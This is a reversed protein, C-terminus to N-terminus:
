NRDSCFLDMIRHSSTRSELFENIESITHTNSIKYIDYYSLGQNKLERLIRNAQVHLDEHEDGTSFYFDTSKHAPRLNPCQEYIYDGVIEEVCKAGLENLQGSLAHGLEHSAIRTSNHLRDKLAFILTYRKNTGPDPIPSYSFGKVSEPANIEKLKKELSDKDMVFIASRRMNPYYDFREFGSRFPTIRYFIDKMIGTLDDDTAEKSFDYKSLDLGEIPRLEKCTLLAESTLGMFYPPYGKSEVFDHFIDLKSGDSLRLDKLRDLPLELAKRKESYKKFLNVKSEHHPISTLVPRPAYLSSATIGTALVMGIMYKTLRM